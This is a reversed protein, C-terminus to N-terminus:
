SSKFYISYFDGGNNLLHKTIGMSILPRLFSCHAINKVVLRAQMHAQLHKRAKPDYFELARVGIFEDAIRCNSSQLVDRAVYWSPV